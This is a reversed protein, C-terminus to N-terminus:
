HLSCETRQQDHWGQLLMTHGGAPRRGWCCGDESEDRNHRKHSFVVYGSMLGSCLVVFEFFVYLYIWYNGRNGAVPPNMSVFLICLYIDM